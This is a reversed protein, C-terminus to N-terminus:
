LMEDATEVETEFGPSEFGKTGTPSDSKSKKSKLESTLARLAKILEPNNSNAM